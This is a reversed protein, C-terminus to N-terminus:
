PVPNVGPGREDAMRTNEVLSRSDLVHYAPGESATVSQVLVVQEARWQIPEFVMDSPPAADRALTVHPKFHSHNDFHIGNEELASVLSRQLKILEEPVDHMGAWAIRNKNFYSVRDLNLMMPSAPLESLIDKLVPLASVPQQGLFALTIHLNSYPTLRGHVGSQLQMLSTRTADDPWLAYFLRLTDSSTSPM